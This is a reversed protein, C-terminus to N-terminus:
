VGGFGREVATMLFCVAASPDARESPMAWHSAKSRVHSGHKPFPADQRLAVRASQKPQSRSNM